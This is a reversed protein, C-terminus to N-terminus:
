IGKSLALRSDIRRDGAGCAPKAGKPTRVSAHGHTTHLTMVAVARWPGDHAVARRARPHYGASRRLPHARGATGFVQAVDGVATGLCSVVEATARPMRLSSLIDFSFMVRARFVPPRDHTEHSRDGERRRRAAAAARMAFNRRARGIVNLPRRTATLTRLPSMSSATTM